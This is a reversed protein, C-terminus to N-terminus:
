PRSRLEFERRAKIAASKASGLTFARVRYPKYGNWESSYDRVYANINEDGPHAFTAVDYVRDALPHVNLEVPIFKERGPASM